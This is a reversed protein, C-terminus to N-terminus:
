IIANERASHVSALRAGFTRCHRAAGAVGCPPNTFRNYCAGNYATWRIPCSSCSVTIIGFAIFVRTVLLLKTLM